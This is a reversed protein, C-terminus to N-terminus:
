RPAEEQRPSEPSAGAPPQPQAATGPPMIDRNVDLWDRPGVVRFDRTGATVDGARVPPVRRLPDAPAALFAPPPAVAPACAAVGVVGALAIFRVM